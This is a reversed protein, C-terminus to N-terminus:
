RDNDKGELKARVDDLAQNYSKIGACYENDYYGSDYKDPFQKKMGEWDLSEGSRATELATRIEQAVDKARVGEIKIFTNGRIKIEDDSEYGHSEYAIEGGDHDIREFDAWHPLAEGGSPRSQTLAQRLIEGDKKRNGENSYVGFILRELAAGTKDNTM